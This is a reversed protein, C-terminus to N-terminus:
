ILSKPSKPDACKRYQSAMLCVVLASGLEKRSALDWGGKTREVVVKGEDHFQRRIEEALIGKLAM